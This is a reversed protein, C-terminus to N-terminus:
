FLFSMELDTNNTRFTQIVCIKDESSLDSIDADNIKEGASEDEEYDSNIKNKAFKSKDLNTENLDQTAKPTSNRSKAKEPIVELTEKSYLM